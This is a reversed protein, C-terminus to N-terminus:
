WTFFGLTAEQVSSVHSGAVRNDWGVVLYALSGDLM